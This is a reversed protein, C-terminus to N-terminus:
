NEYRPPARSDSAELSSDKILEGHEIMPTAGVVYDGDPLGAMRFIGRDDTLPVDVMSNVRSMMTYRDEKRRLIAVPHDMAPEGNVYSVKGTIVGGRRVRVTVQKQSKGDVEVEEFYQSM